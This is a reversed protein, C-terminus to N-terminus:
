KYFKIEVKAGEEHNSFNITGNHDNIIKSVISLGLGTGNTKTTFYPKTLESTKINKFGLGTDIITLSIYDIHEAIEIDINKNSNPAKQCKEIVSEISNKILNFCARSIQEYDFKFIFSKNSDFKFNIKKDLKKLLEINLIIIDRLDNAKYVPKPM